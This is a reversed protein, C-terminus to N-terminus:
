MALEDLMDAATTPNFEDDAIKPEAKIVAGTTIRRMTDAFIDNSSDAAPEFLLQKFVTRSLSVGMQSVSVADLAFIGSYFGMRLYEHANSPKVTAAGPVIINLNRFSDQVNKDKDINQKLAFRTIYEDPTFEKTIEGKENIIETQFPARIQKGRFIGAYQKQESITKVAENYKHMLLFVAKGFPENGDNYQQQGNEVSVSASVTTPRCILQPAGKRTKDDKVGSMQVRHGVIYIRSSKGNMDTILVPFFNVARTADYESVNITIKAGEDFMQIIRSPTLYSAM